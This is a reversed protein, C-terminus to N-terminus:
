MRKRKFRFAAEEKRGDKHDIVVFSEMGDAGVRRMTLGDFYAVGEEIAVLPFEVSQDKEEWGALDASFHKIRLVLSSGRPVFQYLEYFNVKGDKVQQFHGSMQGAIPPSITELSQGGLGEGEWHGVMWAIDAVTAPPSKAGPALTRVNQATAACSWLLALVLVLSRM